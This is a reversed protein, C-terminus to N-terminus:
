HERIQNTFMVQNTTGEIRKALRAYSAGLAFARTLQPHRESVGRREEANTAKLFVDAAAAHSGAGNPLSESLAGSTRSLAGGPVAVTLLVGSRRPGSRVLHATTRPWRTSGEISSRASTARCSGTSRWSQATRPSNTEISAKPSTGSSSSGADPRSLTVPATNGPSRLRTSAPLSKTRQCPRSEKDPAITNRPDPVLMSRPKSIQAAFVCRWLIRGQALDVAINEGMRNM